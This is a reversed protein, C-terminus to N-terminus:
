QDHQHLRDGSRFVWVGPWWSQIFAHFRLRRALEGWHHHHHHCSLAVSGARCPNRIIDSFFNSASRVRSATEGIDDRSWPMLSLSRYMHRPRSFIKNRKWPREPHLASRNEASITEDATIINCCALFVRWNLRAIMLKENSFFINDRRQFPCGPMLRNRFILTVFQNPSISNITSKQM